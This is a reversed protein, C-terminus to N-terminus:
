GIFFYIYRVSFVETNRYYNRYNSLRYRYSLVIVPRVDRLAVSVAIFLVIFQYVRIITTPQQKQQERLAVTVASFLAIVQYVRIIDPWPHLVM